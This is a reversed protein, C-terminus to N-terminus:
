QKVMARDAPIQTTQTPLLGEFSLEAVLRALDDVFAVLQPALVHPEVVVPGVVSPEHEGAM